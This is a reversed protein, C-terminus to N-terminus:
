EEEEKGGSDVEVRRKRKVLACYVSHVLFHNIFAHSCAFPFVSPIKILASLYNSHLLSLDKEVEFKLSQTSLSPLSPLHIFYYSSM